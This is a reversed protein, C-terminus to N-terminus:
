MDDGNLKKYLDYQFMEGSESAAVIDVAGNTISVDVATIGGHAIGIKTKFLPKKGASTTTIGGVKQIMVRGEQTGVIVLFTKGTKDSPKQEAMKYYKSDENTLRIKTLDLIKICTPFSMLNIELHKSHTVFNRCMITQLGDTFCFYCSEMSRDQAFEAYTGPYKKGKYLESFDEEGNDDEGKPKEFMNYHDIM